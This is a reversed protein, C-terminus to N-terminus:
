ARSTFSRLRAPRRLRASNWNTSASTARSGSGTSPTSATIWRAAFGPTRGDSSSGADYMSAFTVAVARRSSAARRIPNFRLTNPEDDDTYPFAVGAGNASPSGATEGLEGIQDGPIPRHAHVPIPRALTVVGINGVAQVADQRRQVPRGARGGPRDLRHVEASALAHAEVPQDRQDRRRQISFCADLAKGILGAVHPQRVGIQRVRTAHQAELRADSDLFPNALEDVPVLLHM